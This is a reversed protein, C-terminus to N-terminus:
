HKQAYEEQKKQILGLITEAGSANSFKSELITKRQKIQDRDFPKDWYHFILEAMEAPNNSEICLSELGTNKIMESNVLVHRGMFLANILKLKIGTAQFTALVNIQAQSIYELIREHTLNKELRIHPHHAIAKTLENSPNNGAIVVPLNTLSFVKKVLYLAAHNNEAVGLNGHYFVFDGKGPDINVFDNPHFATVWKAEFGKSRLYQTDPQSIGLILDAHLLNKEYEKLRKSEKRFFIRKLANKEVRELSAYYDHEINHNRVIKLRNQLRPDPLHYTTHLGEFLIPFSDQLLRSVLKENKRSRVIYPLKGAVPNVWRNRKYYHVEKCFANLEPAPKRGYEFCHLIVDVGCEHLSKIKYFVDMVGGYNAPYPIDFSIIHICEFHNM